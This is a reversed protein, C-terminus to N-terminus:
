VVTINITETTTTGEDDTVAVQFSDNSAVGGGQYSFTNAGADFAFSAAESPGSALAYALGDGDGDAGLIMGKYTENQGITVSVLNKHVAGGQIAGDRANGSADAAIFGAGANFTWYGQLGAEDGNLQRDMDAAIQNQTRVTNWVRVDDIEGNFFGGSGLSGIRFDHAANDAPFTVTGFAQESGDVYLRITNTSATHSMAVHHWKGDAVNSTGTVNASGSHADFMLKGTGDLLLQKGGAGTANWDTEPSKSLITRGAVSTKIWAEWTFDATGFNFPQGDVSVMDNTGDFKLSYNAPLAPAVGVKVAVTETDSGSTAGDARLTFSDAGQFNANPKYIWEGTASDLSLSGSAPATATSYTPTGSVDGATMRGDAVGNEPIQVQTGEIRPAADVWATDGALTGDRDNATGDQVTAGAGEDLPWYGVLGSEDGALSHTMADKVEATSLARDWVSVEAMQGNFPQSGTLYAGFKLNGLASTNIARNVNNFLATETTLLEGDQYVKLDRVGAGGAPVVVAYHHWLGDNTPARPEFTVAGSSVDITVGKGGGASSWNNLGFRFSTGVGSEDGYSVFTMEGSATTKAWLMVTRAATGTPAVPANFTVTDGAGDFSLAKTLHNVLLAEGNGSNAAAAGGTLTGNEIGDSGALDPPVDTVFTVGGTITGNNTGAKDTVTTGSDGELTYHAVLAGGQNGTLTTRYNDAIQQATRATNWIRVDDLQGDLFTSAQERGLYLQSTTGGDPNNAYGGSGVLSGNKYLTWTKAAVDRVAALHTWEGQVISTAIDVLNNTGSGNEHFMRVVGNSPMLLYYLINNANLESPGVGFSVLPSFKTVDDLKVWTEVTVNGTITLAASNPAAVHSNLAGDFQLSKTSTAPVVGGLTAADRVTAGSVDDFSYRAVLGAADYDPAQAMGEAIQGQTRVTNWVRLDDVQGKFHLDNGSRNGIYFDFNSPEGSITMTGSATLVGDTYVKTAGGADDHTVAVHHWQGDRINQGSTLNQHPTGAVFFRPLGNPQLILTIEQLAFAGPLSKSFVVETANDAVTREAKVWTEITFSGNGLIIFPAGDTVVHDNVGDLKLVNATAPVADAAIRGDNNNATADAVVFGKVDDMRWYGQLGTESGALRKDHNAAIEASSRATNWVRVDDMMGKFPNGGGADPLTRGIRIAGTTINLAIGGQSAALNGDVYLRATDAAGDYAVAVHHWQGDAVSAPSAVDFNGTPGNFHLKGDTELYLRAGQNVVDAGTDVIELRSGLNSTNIWAEISFSGTGTAVAAVTGFDVSDDVGDLQLGGGPVIPEADAKVTVAITEDDTIGGGSARLTFTNTGSFNAAPKYVWAGSAADITVAGNAPQAQVSFTPTGVVDSGSMIGSATEDEGITVKTGLVTPAADLRTVDGVITGHNDNASRDTVTGSGEDFTWYGVLGTENGALRHNHHDAIEDAGRTVNWLRVDAIQGDFFLSEDEDLHAGIKLANAPTYDMAALTLQQQPSVLEGNIYLRMAEGDYTAAVHTWAGTPVTGPGSSLSSLSGGGAIVFEVSNNTDLLLAYGSDGSPGGDALNGFIGEFSTDITDPRVWAELTFNVGVQFAAATGLNVYDGGAGDLTSGDGPFDAARGLDGLVRAGGQATGHNANSTLDKVQSGASTDDFRYYAQLGAETGALQQDYNARIDEAARKVSWVRVDDLQGDFFSHSLTGGVAAGLSVFTNGPIDAINPVSHNGARVADLQGDIYFRAETADFAVAVHHWAGTPVTANGVADGGNQNSGHFSLKGASISFFATTNVLDHQKLTITEADNSDLFVWAEITGASLNNLAAGPISVYDDVGDLQLAGDAVNTSAVDVRNVTVTITEDDTFGGGAARLTFTDSGHFNATPKYTWAGSASDIAVAGNAAQAQVSFTAAGVVDNGVMTGAATENEQIVLKTGLITPTAEVRAAGSITGDGSGGALDPPVSASRVAGGVITGNQDGGAQDTVATGSAEEFTYHAVLAGGQDGALTKNYNSSIEAATRKVSWIRVDDLKGDLPDNVTVGGSIWAGLASTGGATSPISFNGTRAVDLQGDIYFRAETSDFAVAVHHWSGTPIVANGAANVGNQPHFLLRGATGAGHVAINGIAFWGNSANGDHQLATIIEAANSDLFVWAEITGASRNNLVSNPINVYDDAGDLDLSKTSSAPLAPGSNKATTGSLEEFAYSVVLGAEGGTAPQNMDEVIQGDSRVTNWLRFDAIQGNFFPDAPYNSKGLFNSGTVIQSPDLTMATNIAVVQGNVYLKGTNRASDISVAVHTWEGTPLVTSDLRQEGGGGTTSIAFRLTNDGSKPTLFLFDNPNSANEGFDFVRQWANGGDWKVWAEVTMDASATAAAPVTVFDDSGDFDLARGLSDVVQPASGTGVPADASAVTTANGALAGDGSSAALDAPVSASRAAGGAITGNQDGGAQDTATTGSAEEFTYHARLLGGQTGTLTTQYNDAIEQATRKVSWVRVDDLKGDLPDRVTSSIIGAGLASVGGTIDPISFDGSFSVDLQGDVYFSLGSTNFAVAVHHWAGTGVTANGVADVGNRPHFLLKGATGASHDAIRGVAFLGTSNVGDHQKYTIVEATNSDLFVWAEITGAPLNNLATGPISVYDDVGDLELSKTSSAPIAPGSNKATAGSDDDFAYYRVLGSENGALKRNMDAAIEAGSRASSWIRVDDIEGNFFGGAGHLSGIRVAHSAVDAGLNLTHSTTGAAAPQGNVAGLTELRGDVYMRVTNSADAFTVAVHHWAGDNVKTTGTANGVGFADFLLEGGAELTFQKGGSAWAGAPAKGVITQQGGAATTKIWAEITFDSTGLNVASSSGLEVYDGAGDLKLVKAGTTVGDNNNATLDQVVGAASEDDFRWYAKLEAPLAGDLQKDYNARIEAATRASSWLRVEDVMGKFHDQVGRDDRGIRLDFANNVNVIAPPSGQQIVTGAALGNVYLELGGAADRTGALHVWEGPTVKAQVRTFNTADQQILFEATAGNNLFRLAWGTQAGVGEDEIKAVIEQEGGAGSNFAWGEVTFAGSGFDLTANDAVRVSDDVGDLRLAGDAVNTSARDVRNVTVAITQTDALSGNTATVTFSDAGFFNANPAYRWAGTASDITVTGNQANTKSFATTGGGGDVDAATMFGQAVENENLTIRTGLVDPATDVRTAGNITGDNANASKDKATAGSLEDFSWYGKLGTENGALVRNYSDAIEAATRATNWVRFEDLQGDLHRGQVPGGATGLWAGIRGDGVAITDAPQALTKTEVRQGDVYLHYEAAAADRAVAVHAWAGVRPQFDYDFVAFSGSNEVWELKNSANFQLHVDGASWTGDSMLLSQFTGNLGDLKLWSEVTMNTFTTALNGVAVYDDTGDFALARGLTRLVAPEAADGLVAAGLTGNNANATLDRVTQGQVDDFRWYGALGTETGALQQAYNLRIDDAARATNWVRVEDIQGKFHNDDAFNRRGIFASGPIIDIVGTMVKSAAQQGDVYLRVTNTVADFTTAVHHWNGDAVSAASAPGSQFALDTELKGDGAVFFFSAKNTAIALDGISLIEQRQGTVTTNIWAEYTFSGTGTYIGGSSPLQVSDDVGDFQLAAGHVRPAADPLVNVAVTRTTTGGANDSVTYSFTDRGQFGANPTYTFAGTAANTIAATGNAGNAALAYALTGSLGTAALTGSVAGGEAVMLGQDIELEHLNVVHDTGTDERNTVVVFNTAPNYTSTATVTATNTPNGVETVTFRLNTGDDFAEFEYPRGAAFSIKVDGAVNAVSADGTTFFSIVNDGSSLAIFGIGNAPLGSNAPNPVADSRTVVSFFDDTNAFTFRGTIHVPNDSTPDFQDKSRLFESNRIVLDGGTEAISDDDGPAAGEVVAWKSADIIGDQFDDAINREGAMDIVRTHAGPVVIKLDDVFHDDNVAGTRAGMIFQWDSAPAYGPVDIGSFLVTSGFKATLGAANHEVSVDAFTQTAQNGDTDTRTAVPPSVAIVAGNYKLEIRGFTTQGGFTEEAGANNFTDFTLSLGTTLGEEAESAGVLSDFGPRGYGFSMGDAAGGDGIKVKFTAKFDKSGAVSRPPDVAFTGQAGAVTALKLFGGSVGASGTFTGPVSASSFDADIVTTDGRNVLGGGDTAEFKLTRPLTSPAASVNSFQVARALAQVAADTASANLNVQLFENAGGDNTSDVTGIVTGGFSVNAGAVGIQGAGTGQNQISLRDGADQNSDIRVVLKGGNYNAEPDAVAIGPDVTVAAQGPLYGTIGKKATARPADEVAAITVTVPQDATLAGDSVRITFNDSGTADPNPTYTFVGGAAYGVTGKAPAVPTSFTLADGDVDAASVVGRYATDETTAIAAGLVTPATDIWTAAATAGSKVTGANANATLDAVSTGAGEDL